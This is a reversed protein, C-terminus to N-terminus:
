HQLKGLVDARIRTHGGKISAKVGLLIQPVEPPAAAM